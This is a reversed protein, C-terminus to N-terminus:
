NNRKKRICTFNLDVLVGDPHSCCAERNLKQRFAYRCGHCGLKRHINIWDDDECILSKTLDNLIKVM